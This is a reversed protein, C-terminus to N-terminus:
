VFLIALCQRSLFTLDRVCRMPDYRMADLQEEQSSGTAIMLPFHSDLTLQHQAHLFSDLTVVPLLCCAMIIRQTHLAVTHPCTLLPLILSTSCVRFPLALVLTSRGEQPSTSPRPLSCRTRTKKNEQILCMHWSDPQPDTPHWPRESWLKDRSNRKWLVDLHRGRVRSVVLSRCFADALSRLGSTCSRIRSASTPQLFLCTLMDPLKRLACGFRVM